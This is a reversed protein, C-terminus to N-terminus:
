QSRPMSKNTVDGRMGFLDNHQFKYNPLAKIEIIEAPPTNLLKRSIAM